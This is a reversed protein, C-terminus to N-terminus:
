RRAATPEEEDEAQDQTEDSYISGQDKAAEEATREAIEIVEQSAHLERLTDALRRAAEANPRLLPTKSLKLTYDV